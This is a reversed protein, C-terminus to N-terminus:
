IIVIECHESLIHGHESHTNADVFTLSEDSNKLVGPLLEKSHIAKAEDIIEAGLWASRAAWFWRLATSLMDCVHAASLACPDHDRIIVMSHVGDYKCITSATLCHRKWCLEPIVHSQVLVLTHLSSLLCSLILKKSTFSLSPPLFLPLFSLKVAVQDCIWISIYKHYIFFINAFCVHKLHPGLCGHM